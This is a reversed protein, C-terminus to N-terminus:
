QVNKCGKKKSKPKAFGMEVDLKRLRKDEAKILKDRYKQPKDNWAVTDLGMEMIEDHRKQARLEKIHQEISM